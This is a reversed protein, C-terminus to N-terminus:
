DTKKQSRVQEATVPKTQGGWVARIWSTLESIQTDNLRTEFPPMTYMRETGTFTETPVGNLIVHILLDPDDMALISNGLMAPSVHPIGEGNVGHCGSCFSMYTLRGNDMAPTALLESAVPIASYPTSPQMLNGHSDTLLYIAMAKVDEPNMQSTSFQTVTHMGGFSTGQASIGTRLYDSLSQVDFGQKALTTATIDPVAVGDVEGGQLARSFEVGMTINRPSHCAGCHAAGEVLYAGRNWEESRSANHPLQRDPFNLLTWFNMFSRVPFIFVGTNEKNQIPLAPISMNYAYLADLDDPTILHTFVFPMAPYLNGKKAIGNRLAQHYDARTYNGIGYEKDPTINTSYLTGFPTDIPLGGAGMPGNPASHCGFCDGAMAIERGRPILLQMQEVSLEEEAQPAITTKRFLGCLIAIAIILILTVIILITCRLKSKKM